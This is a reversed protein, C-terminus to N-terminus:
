PASKYVIRDASLINQLMYVNLLIRISQIIQRGILTLTENCKYAKLLFLHFGTILLKIHM